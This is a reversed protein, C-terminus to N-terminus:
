CGETHFSRFLDVKDVFSLPDGEYWVWEVGNPDTGIYLGDDGGCPHPVPKGIELDLPKGDVPVRFRRGAWREVDRKAEDVTAFNKYVKASGGSAYCVRVSTTEWAVPDFVECDPTIYARPKVTFRRLPVRCRVTDVALELDDDIIRAEIVGGAVAEFIIKAPRM